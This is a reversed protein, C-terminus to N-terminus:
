DESPVDDESEKIEAVDPQLATQENIKSFDNNFIIGQVILDLYKGKKLEAKEIM